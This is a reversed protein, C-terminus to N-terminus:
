FSLLVFNRDIYGRNYLQFFHPHNLLFATPYPAGKLIRTSNM